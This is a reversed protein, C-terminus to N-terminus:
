GSSPPDHSPPCVRLVYASEPPTVPLRVGAEMLVAGTVTVPDGTTWSAGLDLSHSDDTPTEVSLEYHREADLGTLQVLWPSQTRTADLVAVVYAAESRDPSVVGTVQVAPDPHDPRVTRGEAILPRLEEALTLMHEGVGSPALSDTFLCVHAGM